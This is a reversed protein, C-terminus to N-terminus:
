APPDPGAFRRALKPDIPAWHSVPPFSIQVPGNVGEIWGYPLKPKRTRPTLRRILIREWKARAFGMEEDTFETLDLPQRLDRHIGAFVVGVPKNGIENVVQPQYLLDALDVPGADPAPDANGDTKPASGGTATPPPAAPTPRARKPKPAEARRFDAEIKEALAVSRRQARSLKEIMQADNLDVPKGALTQEVVQTMLTGATEAAGMLLAVRRAVTAARDPAAATPVAPADPPPPTDSM